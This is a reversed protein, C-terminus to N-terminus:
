KIILRDSLVRDNLRIKVFYVGPETIGSDITLASSFSGYECKQEFVVQGLRNIVQVLLEKQQCDDLGKIRFNGDSPNPYITISEFTGKLDIGSSPDVRIYVQHVAQCGRLDSVTLIYTISTVPTAIPNPSTPDNLGETPTWSYVFSPTGGIATPNGGLTVSQNTIIITDNGAFAKLMPPQSFNVPILEQGTLGISFTGALVLLIIKKPM